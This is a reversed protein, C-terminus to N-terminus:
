CISIVIEESSLIYHVAAIESLLKVHSSDLVSPNHNYSYMFDGFFKSLYSAIHGTKCTYDCMYVCDSERM